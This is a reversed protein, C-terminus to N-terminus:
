KGSPGYPNPFNQKLEGAGEPGKGMKAESAKSVHNIASFDKESNPREPSGSGMEKPM